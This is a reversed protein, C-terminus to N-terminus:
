SFTIIESEIHKNGFTFLWKLKGITSLLREKKMKNINMLYVRYGMLMDEKYCYEIKIPNYYIDLVFGAVKLVFEEVTSYEYSYFRKYENHYEVVVEDEMIYIMLRNDGAISIIYEGNDVARWYIIAGNITQSLREYLENRIAVPSIVTDYAFEM